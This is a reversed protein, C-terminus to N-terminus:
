ERTDSGKPNTFNIQDSITSNDGPVMYRQGRHGPNPLQPTMDHQPLRMIDRSGRLDALKHAVQSFSPPAASIQTSLSMRDPVRSASVQMMPSPATATDVNLQKMAAAMSSDTIGRAQKSWAFPDAIRQEFVKPKVSPGPRQQTDVVSAIDRFPRQAVSPLGVSTSSPEGRQPLLGGVLKITPDKPRSDLDVVMEDGDVEVEGATITGESPDPFSMSDFDMQMDENKSGRERAKQCALVPSRLPGEYYCKQMIVIEGHQWWEAPIANNKNNSTIPLERIRRNLQSDYELIIGELDHRWYINEVPLPGKINFTRRQPTSDTGKVVNGNMRLFIIEPLEGSHIALASYKRPHGKECTERVDQWERLGFWDDLVTRISTPGSNPACAELYLEAPAVSLDDHEKSLCSSRVSAM